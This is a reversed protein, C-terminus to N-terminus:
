VLHGYFPRVFCSHYYPHLPQLVEDRVCLALGPQGVKPILFWHNLDLAVPAGRGRFHPCEKARGCSAVVQIRTVLVFPVMPEGRVFFARNSDVGSSFDLVLLLGFFSGTRPCRFGEWCLFGAGPVVCGPLSSEPSGSSLYPIVASFARASGSVSAEDPHTTM